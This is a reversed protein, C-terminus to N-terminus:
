IRGPSRLSTRSFTKVRRRRSGRYYRAIIMDPDYETRERYTAPDFDDGYRAECNDYRM